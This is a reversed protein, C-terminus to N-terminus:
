FYQSYLIDTTIIKADANDALGQILKKDGTWLHAGEQYALALFPIDDIDVMALDNTARLQCAEAIYSSEFFEVHRIVINRLREYQSESYNTIKLIKLKHAHLEEMLYAPAIYRIQGRKATLLKSIKGTPTLIGSFVINTDVVIIKVTQHTSFLNRWKEGVM